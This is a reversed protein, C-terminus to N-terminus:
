FVIYKITRIIYVEYNHEFKKNKKYVTLLNGNTNKTNM